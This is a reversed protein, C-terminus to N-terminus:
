PHASSATATPRPPEASARTRCRAPQREKKAHLCSPREHTTNVNVAPCQISLMSAKTLQARLWDTVGASTRVGAEAASTAPATRSAARAPRRTRMVPVPCENVPTASVSPTRSRGLARVPTSPAPSPQTFTAAPVGSWASFSSSWRRPERECVHAVDGRLGGGPRDLGAGVAGAPVGSPEGVLDGFQLHHEGVARDRGYPLAVQEVRGPDPQAREADEGGDREPDLGREQQPGSPFRHREAPDEVREVVQGPAVVM